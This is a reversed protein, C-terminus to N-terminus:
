EVELARIIAASAFDPIAAACRERMREAAERKEHRLEILEDLMLNAGVEAIRLEEHMRELAAQQGAVEARLEAMGMSALDWGLQYAEQIIEQTSTKEFADFFEGGDFPIHEYQARLDARHLEQARLDAVERVTAFSLMFESLPDGRLAFQVAEVIACLDAENRTRTKVEARLKSVIREEDECLVSLRDDACACGPFGDPCLGISAIDYGHVCSWEPNVQVLGRLIREQDRLREIEDIAEEESADGSRLREVLDRESV